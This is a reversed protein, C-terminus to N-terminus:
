RQAAETPVRRFLHRAVVDGDTVMNFSSVYSWGNAYLFNFVDMESNFARNGGRPDQIRSNLEDIGPVFQGHDVSANFLRSALPSWVTVKIYEVETRTNIDVERVLVQANAALTAAALAAAAIFRFLQM